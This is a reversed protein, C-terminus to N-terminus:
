EFLEVDGCVPAHDIRTHYARERSAVQAIGQDGLRRVRVRGGDTFYVVRRGRDGGLDEAVVQIGETRLYGRAFVINHEGIDTTGDLVRGGGFLKAELRERRAGLSFLANLLQEMAYSGYRTAASVGPGWDPEGETEPLMFHNMGAVGVFPDRICAGVCSGLVTTIVEGTRTAYYEGPSLRVTEAGIAPDWFRTLHEFGAVPNATTDVEVNM